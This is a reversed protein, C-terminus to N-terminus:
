TLREQVGALAGRTDQLPDRAEGSCGAHLFVLEEPQQEVGEDGPIEVESIAQILILALQVRQQGAPEISPVLELGKVRNRVKGIKVWSIDIRLDQIGSYSRNELDAGDAM